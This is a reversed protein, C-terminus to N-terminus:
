DAAADLAPFARFKGNGEWEGSEIIRQAEAEGVSRHWDYVMECWQYPLKPYDRHMQKLATTRQALEVKTYGALPAPQHRPIDGVGDM